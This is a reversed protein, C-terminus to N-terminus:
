LGGGYILYAAGSNSGGRDNYYAGILLDVFGDGNIDGAGEVRVGAKDGPEEGVFRADSAVLEINDDVSGYLLYTAGADIGGEDNLYAGILVDDLGDDDLDGIYGGGIVCDGAAEAAFVADAAGLDVDGYVPGNVLYAAGSSTGQNDNIDAGVLLDDFGDGNVDGVGAVRVGARDGDAEGVLRADAASLDVTGYVPGYVLYATGPGGNLRQDAGIVLDALGDADVDGAGAFWRGASDNEDEGVLKADANALDFLGLPVGYHVYAAGAADGGADHTHAALVLDDCGDGDMDGARTVTRGVKDGDEEGVFKIDATSLDRVGTAIPGFFVYAAGAGDGGADNGMAGILIDDHGDCDVDGASSLGYGAQDGAEEGVFITDAQSLDFLGHLDGDFLYAAGASDGGRDNNYSAVLLEAEGDGDVDGATGIGYGAHDDAEEGVFIADAVSLDYNGSLVCQGDFGDCNSDTGDECAEQAGPNIDEDADDCDDQCEDYSDGDDDVEDSHLVGDCDNDIYDCEVEALEPSVTVDADNCDEDGTGPIGDSGCTDVGDGDADDLNLEADTDDCDLSCTSWGDGDADDLNLAENNDNCDGECEMWGDSDVDAEEGPLQGDCDNDEGDCIEEAGPFSVSNNDNCDGACTAVGDTDNDAFGEDVDGDCDNDKGDCVEDAEPHVTPDDPMCDVSDEWGDHDFDFRPADDTCGLLILLVGLLAILHRTQM